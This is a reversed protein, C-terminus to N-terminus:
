AFFEEVFGRISKGAFIIDHVASCVPLTLGHKKIVQQVSKATNIGEPLVDIM